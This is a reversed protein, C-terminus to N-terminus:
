KIKKNLIDNTKLADNLTKGTVVFYMKRLADDSIKNLNQEASKLQPSMYNMKDMDSEFRAKHFTFFSALTIILVISLAYKNKHFSHATFREILNSKKRNESKKNKLFHPLVILAFLAAAIVSIGAYLGLDQLAESSVFLLCFFAAATTISSMLIPITIDGFIESPHKKNRFHTFIHLSYDISIGVLVSGVGLSIASIEGRILYLLAISVAAGFAAPLFIIFFIDFRKYFFSLFFFLVIVAISVTLIIDKKIREANGVSIVPAGFIEAKVEPIKTKLKKLTQNIGEILIKNKGTENNSYKSVVFLLLHKKDKTFIHNDFIEYSNDLQLGQLKKLALPTISLPDKKIFKKTVMSAPSILTRFDAALTKDIGNKSLLTDIKLYDKESLFVPLNEYFINYLENMVQNGFSNQIEAIYGSFNKTLIIELSDAFSELVEPKADATNNKLSLNIIIKDNIKIHKNAFNFRQLERDVPIMESIDETTLDIIAISNKYNLAVYLKGNTIALGEPGGPIMYKKEVKRTIINYKLIYSDSMTVWDPNAGLCSIYLYDGDAICFRPNEIKDIVGNLSQEMFPNVTILQDSANGILFISDNYPLAYQINSLLENGGNQSKYYFNNMEDKDFDYKSISAGGKGFSGYNVIYCGEILDSPFPDEPTENKNCSTFVATVVLLMAFYNILKKM